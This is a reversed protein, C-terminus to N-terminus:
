RPASAAAEAAATEAIPKIETKFRKKLAAIYAEAEAAAWAQAYQQRLQEEGGPPTERPLVQMVKIVMYGQDGLDVGQLLPLKAPDAGLAAELLQRPMGQAQARSVTLVLPLPENSSGAKLAALRAEGEKRALAAAQENVVRERVRDKVEALPQVRAPSHQVVRAAALQNPGVEVADTNRKNRVTENGFVADLLKSSALAGTAGPAPKRQVTATKKELKFKSVLPELSDSQEYATNTFQEASEAWRSQARQRRLATEVEARVADFAKYTGGRVATVTIIHYGFDTEVVKSIEGQKLAFVTDEFPKVMAGRGFFDLDGGQAASGDESNKRALEAFSGPNKRLDALLAEAKAKAKARQEATSDKDAKILIHSARREEPVGYQAKGDEYAKRLDDETLTIGKGLADLDLVVYEISAQEPAKFEAEHAKYFAEVEADTPAVKARFAAPEFAQAQVARRQMFADLTATASVATVPVTQVVGGVVQRVALDQRLRQDFLEPSMGQMALLERSIKGDTGRLSAFQPDSDFLRNMRAVTPFLQLQNAAALLARERVLGDLTDRRLTPSDLSAPDVGQAQRRMGDLVRKHADDWEVRTIARGDVKAVTANAGDTFRSYGQVGFFVFSPIILLLMFGLALRTHQRVFDFM